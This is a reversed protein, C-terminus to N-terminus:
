ELANLLNLFDIKNSFGISQHIIEEKDPEIFFTVPVVPAYIYKPFNGEQRNIILPIYKSKIKDDINKNMLTKKEFKSCWPCYNTIMLVMLNKNEKKARELATKYDTEYAMEKAFEKYGDAFLLLSLMMVILLKKM